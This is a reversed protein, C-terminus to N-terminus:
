TRQKVERTPRRQEPDLLWALADKETLFARMPLRRSLSTMNLRVRALESDVIAAIAEIRANSAWDRVAERIEEAHSGLARYDLLMRRQDNGDLARNLADRVSAADSAAEPETPFDIRIIDPSVTIIPPM